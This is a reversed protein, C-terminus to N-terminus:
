MYPEYRKKASGTGAKKRFLDCFQSYVTGDVQSAEM